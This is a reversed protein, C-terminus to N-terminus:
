THLSARQVLAVAHVAIGEGRGTEGMGENTKGKVSVAAVDVGLAGALRARIREIHPALSPREAVVVADVNTVAYGGDKILSVAQRLLSLSDAGQWRPDTDPFHQGINGLAAAGLVADTIAHCLADGDSHGKLGMSYPILVGGLLLRRGEILRHSDYGTGIRLTVDMDRNEGGSERASLARAFVLDAATTVKLNRADGFVLRVTHGAQEALASEDTGSVGSRGLAIAEALIERKFAQPTQALWVTAREITRAVSPPTDGASQKVTDSAPLAAIAAGTERAASITREITGADVFPRAADHIVILQVGPDVAAFGAAVSDQRRAGGPVVHVPKSRGHLTTPPTAVADAPLVVVVEDIAPHDVFADVSRDLMTRGGIDVFQKATSEGLRRGQGGAAIIAAVTM